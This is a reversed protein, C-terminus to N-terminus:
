VPQLDRYAEEDADSNWEDLTNSSASLYTDASTVERVSVFEHQRAPFFKNKWLKGMAGIPKIGQVPRGDKGVRMKQWRGTIGDIELEITEGARMNVVRNQLTVDLHKAWISNDRIEIESM